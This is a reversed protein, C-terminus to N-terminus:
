IGSQYFIVGLLCLVNTYCKYLTPGVDFVNPRRQIFTICINQTQQPGWMNFDYYSSILTMLILRTKFGNFLCVINGPTKLIAVLIKNLHGTNNTAGPPRIRGGLCHLLALVTFVSLFHDHEGGGGGGGVSSVRSKRFSYCINPDILGKLGSNVMTM